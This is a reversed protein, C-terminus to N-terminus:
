DSRVFGGGADVAVFRGVKFGPQDGGVERGCGRFALLAMFIDVALLKGPVADRGARIAVVARFPLRRQEIM